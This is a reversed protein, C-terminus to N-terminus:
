DLAIQVITLSSPNNLKKHKIETFLLLELSELSFLIFSSCYKVHRCLLITGQYKTLEQLLIATTNWPFLLMCSRHKMHLSSAAEHLDLTAAITQGLM